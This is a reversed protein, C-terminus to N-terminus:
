TACISRDRSDLVDLELIGPLRSSVQKCSVEEFESGQTWM